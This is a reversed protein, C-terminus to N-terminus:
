TRDIRTRDMTTRDMRVVRRQFQEGALQVTNAFTFGAKKFAHLSKLNNEEPDAIVASVRPDAFVIQRLFKLIAVTGLGLGKMALEGIALDIGASELEAGLQQAQV